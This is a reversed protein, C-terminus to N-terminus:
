GAAGTSETPNSPASPESPTTSPPNADYNLVVIQQIGKSAKTVVVIDGVKLADKKLEKLSGDTYHAFLASSNLYVYDIKGTGKLTDVVQKDYPQGQVDESCLDLVMFSSSIETVVGVINDPDAAISTSPTTSPSTSPNTTESSGDACGAFIGICMVMVLVLALSKVNKNM